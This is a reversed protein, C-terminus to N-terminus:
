SGNGGGLLLNGQRTPVRDDALRVLHAQRATLWGDIADLWDQSWIGSPIQDMIPQIAREVYDDMVGLAKPKVLLLDAEGLGATATTFLINDVVADAALHAAIAMGHDILWFTDKGDYLINGGHRDHNAIWEDFCAAPILDAWERLRRVVAADGLQTLWPRLSGHLVTVSGFALADAGARSLAAPVFVVMPEPAELSLHRALLACICEVLIERPEVEKIYAEVSSDGLFVFGRVSGRIGEDAAGLVSTLIGRQVQPM